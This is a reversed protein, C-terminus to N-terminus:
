NIYWIDEWEYLIISCIDLCEYEYDIPFDIYMLIACM